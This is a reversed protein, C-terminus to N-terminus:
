EKVEKNEIIFTTEKKDKDIITDLLKYDKIKEKATDMNLPVLETFDKLKIYIKLCNNNYANIILKLRYLLKEINLDHYRLSLEGFGYYVNFLSPNVFEICISFDDIHIFIDKDQITTKYNIEKQIFESFEKLFNLELESKKQNLLELKQYFNNINM